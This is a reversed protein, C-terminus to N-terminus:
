HPKGDMLESIWREVQALLERRMRENQRERWAFWDRLTVPADGEPEEVRIPNTM